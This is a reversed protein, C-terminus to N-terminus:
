LKPTKKIIGKKILYLGGLIMALAGIEVGFPWFELKGSQYDGVVRFLESTAAMIFIVGIITKGNIM